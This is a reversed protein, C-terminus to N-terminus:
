VPSFLIETLKTTATQASGKEKVAHRIPLAMTLHFLSRPILMLKAPVASYQSMEVVFGQGQESSAAFNEMGRHEFDNAMSISVGDRPKLLNILM